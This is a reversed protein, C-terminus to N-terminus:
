AFREARLRVTFNDAAGTNSNKTIQVFLKEDARANLFYWQVRDLLEGSQTTWQAMLESTTNNDAYVKVDYTGAYTGAPTVQLYVITARKGVSDVSISGSAAIGATVPAGTTDLLNGGLKVRGAAELAGDTKLSGAASRYLNTDPATAGGPGWSQKGSADVNWRENAEGTVTARWALSTALTRSVTQATSFATGANLLAVNASLQADALTGSTVFNASLTVNQLARAANIVAQGGVLLSVVDVNSDSKLTSAASRYLNTDRAANGPGWEQTGDIKRAYRPTTDGAVQSLVLFAGVVGQLTQVGTITNAGNKLMVNASLRADALTGTANGADLLFASDLDDLLDANLGAIKQNLANAGLIFAAGVAAPNYTHAVTITRAVSKHVYQAHDDGALGTLASHAVQAGHGAAGSHDHTDIDVGDVTKNAAITLNDGLGLGASLQASGAVDLAVGNAPVKGVGLRGDAMMVFRDAGNNRWRALTGTLARRTDYAYGDDAVGANSAFRMTRQAGYGGLEGPTLGYPEMVVDGAALVAGNTTFNHTVTALKFVTHGAAPAPLAGGAVALVQVTRKIRHTNDAGYSADLIGPDDVGTIETDAWDVYVTATQAGTAGGAFAALAATTPIRVVQGGSLAIGGAVDVARATASATVLGSSGFLALGDSLSALVRDLRDSLIDQAENLDFDLLANQQGYVVKRYGKTADFSNRSITM